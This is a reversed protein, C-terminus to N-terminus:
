GRRWVGKYNWRFLNALTPRMRGQADLQIHPVGLRIFREFMSQELNSFKRFADNKIM